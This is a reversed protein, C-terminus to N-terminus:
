VYRLLNQLLRWYYFGSAASGGLAGKLQTTGITTSCLTARYDGVYKGKILFRAAPYGGAISYSVYCTWQSQLPILAPNGAYGDGTLGSAGNYGDITSQATKSAGYNSFFNAYPFDQMDDNYMALAKLYQGQSNACTTRLAHTRAQQLAPLLMAALIAIIAVVVLLEILTFRRSM